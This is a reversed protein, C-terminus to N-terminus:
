WKSLPCSAGSLKTKKKMMCGCMKCQYSPKILHPCDECIELRSQTIQEEELKFGNRAWSWMTKFFMGLRDWLTVGEESSSLFVVIVSLFKDTRKKIKFKLSSTKLKIYEERLEFYKKSYFQVDKELKEIKEQEDM